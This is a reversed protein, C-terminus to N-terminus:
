GAKCESTGFWILNSFVSLSVSVGSSLGLGDEIQVQLRNGWGAKSQVDGMCAICVRFM